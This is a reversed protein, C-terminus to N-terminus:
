IDEVLKQKIQFKMGSTLAYHYKNPETPNVPDFDISNDKPHYIGGRGGIGVTFTGRPAFRLRDMGRSHGIWLDAKPPETYARGADFTVKPINMENELMTKLENYFRMALKNGKIYAPNGTIIVASKLHLLLEANGRRLADLVNPIGVEKLVKVPETSVLEQEMLGRRQEFSTPDVTYLSAKKKLLNFAGRYKEQMYFFKQSPVSGTSYYGIDFDKGTGHAMSLALLQKPTAFVVDDKTL